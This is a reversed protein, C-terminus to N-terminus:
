YSFLDKAEEYKNLYKKIKKNALRRKLLVKDPIIEESCTKKNQLVSGIRVKTLRKLINKIKGENKEAAFSLQMKYRDYNNSREIEFNVKRYYEKLRENNKFNNKNRILVESIMEILKMIYKATKLTEDVDNFVENQSELFIKLNKEKIYKTIDIKSEINLIIKQLKSTINILSNTETKNTQILDELKKTLIINIKKRYKAIKLLKKEEPLYIKMYEKYDNLIENKEYKLENTALVKEWYLCLNEHLKNNKANFYTQFEEPNEFIEKNINQVSKTAISKKKVSKKRKSHYLSFFKKKFMDSNLLNKPLIKIQSKRAENEKNEEQFFGYEQKIENPIKDLSKGYKVQLFFKKLEKLNVIKEKVHSIEINKKEILKIVKEKEAKLKNLHDLEKRRINILEQLYHKLSDNYIIFMKKSVKYKLELEKFSNIEEIKISELDKLHKNVLYNKYKAKRLLRISENFKFFSDEHQYVKTEKLFDSINKDFSINFDLSFTKNYKNDSKNNNNNSNTDGKLLLHRKSSNFNFNTTNFFSINTKILSSRTTSIDDRQKNFISHIKKKTNLKNSYILTTHNNRETLPTIINHKVSKLILKSKIDKTKLNKFSASFFKQKLNGHSEKLSRIRNFVKKHYKVYSLSNGSQIIKQNMETLYEDM